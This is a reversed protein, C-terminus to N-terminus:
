CSKGKALKLAPFFLVQGTQYHEKPTYIMGDSLQRSQLAQKEREIRQVVLVDTLEETTLPTEIDLLHNYIFELDQPELVFPDWYDERLKFPATAM